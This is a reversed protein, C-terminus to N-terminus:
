AVFHFSTAAPAIASAVCIASLALAAALSVVLSTLDSFRIASM